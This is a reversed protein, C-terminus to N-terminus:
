LSAKWLEVRNRGRRKAIYLAEDAIQ